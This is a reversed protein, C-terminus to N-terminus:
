VREFISSIVELVSCIHIRKADRLREGKRERECRFGRMTEVLGGVSAEEDVM